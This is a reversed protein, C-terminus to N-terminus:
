SVCWAFLLASVTKKKILLKILWRNRPPHFLLCSLQIKATNYLKYLLELATVTINCHLKIKIRVYKEYLWM